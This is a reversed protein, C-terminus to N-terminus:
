GLGVLNSIIVCISILFMFLGLIGTIRIMIIQESFQIQYMEPSNDLLDLKNTFKDLVRTGTFLKPIIFRPWAYLLKVARIPHCVCVYGCMLMFISAPYIFPSM